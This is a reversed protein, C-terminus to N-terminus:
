HTSMMPLSTGAQASSLWGPTRSPSGATSETDSTMRHNYSTKVNRGPLTSYAEGAWDLLVQSSQQFNRTKRLAKARSTISSILM